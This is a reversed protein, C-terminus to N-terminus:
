RCHSFFSLNFVFRDQRSAEYDAKKKEKKEKTQKKVLDYYGDGDAETDMDEDGGPGEPRRPEPETDDLDAGGQSRVHAKAERALRDEREKKRERYPIDDDGGLANSRANNRRASASEIRSTHFRLTKRRASKDAADAHQLSTAEGFTDTSASHLHSSSPMKSSTFEPEVLDFIPIATKGSEPGTKRKKKPPPTPALQPKSKTGSRADALLDDLEASDVDINESDEDDYDKNWLEQADRMIEDEDLSSHEDGFDAEEEEEEDENNDGEFDGDDDSAAFDLDELTILSQKLKLLRQMVPHSRLLEPKQAYKQSARLHLYFALTTTYTLLTEIM